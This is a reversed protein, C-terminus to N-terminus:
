AAFATTTTTKMGQRTLDRVFADALHEFGSVSSSADTLLHIKQVLHPAQFQTVIDRVTNALCHSLAEGAMLIVDAEELTTVFGTNVQTGPDEPDPVEAQVGSFHETWPNSGKTIFDVVAFRDEWEHLADALVPFVGHGEDGIVTLSWAGLPDKSRLGDAFRHATMGAGVVVIRASDLSSGDAPPTSEPSPSTM